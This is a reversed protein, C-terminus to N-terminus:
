LGYDTFIKHVAPDKMFNMFAKVEPKESWGKTTAMGIVIPDYLNEPMEVWGGISERIAIADTINVFGAEASGAMVYSSAQPVTATIILKKSIKDKLGSRELLQSAARGYIAKQPDPMAIYTVQPDILNEYSKIPYKNYIIVLKGNGLPIFPDFFDSQTLFSQDGFTVGVLGSKEVQALVQQMNGFVPDVGIGTQDKFAQYVKELPRKYGAGAAVVLNDAYSTNSFFFIWALLFICALKLQKM